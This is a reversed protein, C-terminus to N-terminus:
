ALRLKAPELIADLANVFRQGITSWRFKPQSVLLSSLNSVGERAHPSRYMTDMARIFHDGDPVGGIVNVFPAGIVTSTCPILLAFEKAWDGYASWDPLICPVGCAMAELAPLGMGEGQTTSVYIDMCNYTSRMMDETEGYFPPPEILALRDLVGYYQALQKVDCGKDGTPACHMFLWADRIVRTDPTRLPGPPIFNYVWDAFFRVTLDWRKRAQNRNVNGVFFDNAMSDPFGRQQRAAIKDVPYYTTLNVGLPIVEAPGQYGGARAEDLGFQTWFIALAIDKLWEGQFNKGDVALSTVVPIDAYQPFNWSGDPKKSRLQKMYYPINWGDQQIVIVDPNVLDCMWILRGIGFSDGGPAAAYIPYPYTHPDGRYNMGLVTVDYSKRIVDLTEHTARAFGSPCGADGIWLLKRV